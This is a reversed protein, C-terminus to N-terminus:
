KMDPSNPYEFLPRGDPGLEVEGGGGGGLSLTDDSMAKGIQVFTKILTPNNGMGTDDLHKQLEPGGFKAVARDMFTLNAKYQESDRAGWDAELSKIGEEIATKRAEQDAQLGGIWFQMYYNYLEQGAKKSVGLEHFKARFANEVDDSITIGEPLNTPRAFEYGDMKEPRGVANHFNNVEEPTPNDGLKPIMTGLKGNLEEVTKSSETVKGETEIYAKGLEGITQYKTLGEHNQLDSPLQDMWAPKEM